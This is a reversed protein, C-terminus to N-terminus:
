VKIKVSCLGPQPQESYHEEKSLIMQHSHIQRQPQCSDFEAPPQQYPSLTM